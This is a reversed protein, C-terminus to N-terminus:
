GELRGVERCQVGKETFQVIVLQHRQARMKRLRRILGAEDPTLGVMLTIYDCMPAPDTLYAERPESMAGKLRGSM